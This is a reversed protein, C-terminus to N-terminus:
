TGRSPPVMFRFWWGCCGGALVPVRRGPSCLRRHAAPMARNATPATPQPADSAAFGCGVTVTVAVAVAVAVAVSVTVGSGVAVTVVVLVTLVGPGLTVTVLVARAAPVPLALLPLTVRLPVQEITELEPL